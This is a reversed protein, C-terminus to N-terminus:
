PLKDIQTESQEFNLQTAVYIAAPEHTTLSRYVLKLKNQMLLNRFLLALKNTAFLEGATIYSVYTSFYGNQTHQFKVQFISMAVFGPM